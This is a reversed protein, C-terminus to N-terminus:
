MQNLVYNLLFFYNLALFTEPYAGGFGTQLKAWKLKSWCSIFAMNFDSNVCGVGMWDWTFYVNLRGKISKYINEIHKWYLSNWSGKTSSVYNTNGLCSTAFCCSKEPRSKNVYHILFFKLWTITWNRQNQCGCSLKCLLYFNFNM